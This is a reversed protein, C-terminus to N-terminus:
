ISMHDLLEMLQITVYVIEDRVAIDRSNEYICLLEPERHNSRNNIIYASLFVDLGNKRCKLFIVDESNLELWREKPVKVLGAESILTIPQM